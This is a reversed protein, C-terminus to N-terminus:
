LVSCDDEYRVIDNEELYDGIQTDIFEIMEEGVNEM